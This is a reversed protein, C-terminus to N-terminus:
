LEEDIGFHMASEYKALFKQILSADFITIEGDGDVDAARFATLTNDDYTPYGAYHALSKQISSADFITVEGDGDVDGRKASVAPEDTPEAASGGYPTIETSDADFLKCGTYKLPDLIEDNYLYKHNDAGAVTHLFTNIEYVGSEATVTFKATILKKDDTKFSKGKASSYNYKLVGKIDSNLTVESALIPFLDSLDDYYEEDDEDYKQAMGNWSLGEVDYFTDADLSCLKEGTNLYFTYTFIDGKQVAYYVGDAKITVGDFGPAETPQAPAETPQVPAETPQAPAETPQAPADTPQAPAETPQAPAETPQAPTDTPQAPTDTPEAEPEEYPAIEDGDADFLKSGTYKLPDIIEYNLIYNHKDAGAVTNLFTNIEYVGSEATVTFKATILKKSDKDFKKGTANSYNYKLKGEVDSNLTVSEGLIPFLDSMDDYYEEEDEDYKQAMGNWSLGSADYYTEADLSCLKEGTNLYYTYTFIVGKQVAYYVGDAKIMVSDFESAETPQADTPQAPAETPDSAETPDPAETPQVPAETPQSPAETPQAPAETPQAAPDEYPAIEGGVEDFLKSGAYQLPDVVKDEFIFKHGEAGTVTHLITDIEFVGSEATVTFRATILKKNDTTFNKGSTSTYNYNLKGEDNANLIVAEGLIPFLDYQDNVYEEDNEDYKQAMGNWSLGATEYFTEANLSCLKEGINLYFTYTFVDGKQVPYYLGDAKILVGNYDPAATAIVADENNSHHASAAVTLSATLTIALLISLFKKM